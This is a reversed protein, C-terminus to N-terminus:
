SKRPATRKRPPPAPAEAPVDGDINPEPAKAARSGVHEWVDDPWQAPDYDAVDITDGPAVVQPPVGPLLAQADADTKNRLTAM